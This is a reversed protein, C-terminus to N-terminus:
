RNVNPAKLQVVGRYLTAEGQVSVTYTEQLQTPHPNNVTVRITWKGKAQSENNQKALEQAAQVESEARIVTANPMPFSFSFPISHSGGVPPGAAFTRRESAAKAGKPTVEVMISVDQARPLQQGRAEVRVTLNAMSVNGYPQDMEVTGGTAPLTQDRLSLSGKSTSFSVAYDYVPAGQSEYTAVGLISFVVALVLVGGILLDIKRM